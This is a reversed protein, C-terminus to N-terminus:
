GIVSPLSNLHPMKYGDLFTNNEPKISNVHSGGRFKSVPFIAHRLVRPWTAHCKNEQNNVKSTPHAKNERKRLAMWFREENQLSM